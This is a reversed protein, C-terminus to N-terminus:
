YYPQKIINFIINLPIGNSRYTRNKSFIDITYPIIRINIYYLYLMYDIFRMCQVGHMTYYPTYAHIMYCDLRLLRIVSMNQNSNM